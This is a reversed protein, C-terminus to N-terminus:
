RAERWLTPFGSAVLRLRAKLLLRQVELDSPDALALGVLAKYMDAPPLSALERRGSLLEGAALSGLVSQEYGLRRLEDIATGYCLLREVRSGDDRAAPCTGLARRM